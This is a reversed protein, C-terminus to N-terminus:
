EDKVVITGSWKDHWGSAEDNLFSFADFPVARSFSRGLIQEFTPKEGTETVVRTKTIYKGLTKGNLFTESLAYFIALSVGTIIYDVLTNMNEFFDDAINFAVSLGIILVFLLGTFVIRDIIYNAFRQGTSARILEKEKEIILTDLFDNSDNM